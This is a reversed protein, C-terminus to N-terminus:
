LELESPRYPTLNSKQVDAVSVSRRWTNDCENSESVNGNVDCVLKVTYTGAQSFTYGYDSAYAYYGRKLVMSTGKRVLSENM